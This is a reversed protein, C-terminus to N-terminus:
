DSAAVVADTEAEARPEVDGEPDLGAEKREKAKAAEIEPRSLIKPFAEPSSGTPRFIMLTMERGERWANFAKITMGSLIYPSLKYAREKHQRELISRLARVPSGPPENKANCLVDFFRTGEGPEIEDFLYALFGAISVRMRADRFAKRGLSVYGRIQPEGELLAIAETATPATRSSYDLRDGNRYRYLLGLMAGLNTTDIEGHLALVDSLNRRTGVDMTMQTTVPLGRVVLMAVTEGSAVIASLRHQGNLLEGNDAIQIPEGNVVWEGREMAGALKRVYDERMGRNRTNRELIERADAPTLEVIEYDLEAM